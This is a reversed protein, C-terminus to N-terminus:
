APRDGVLSWVVDPERDLSELADLGTGSFRLEATDGPSLREIPHEYFEIGEVRLAVAAVTDCGTRRCSGREYRIRRIATFVDGLGFDGECCRGCVVIRGPDRRVADITFEVQPM